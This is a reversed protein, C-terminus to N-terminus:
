RQATETQVRGRGEDRECGTRGIAAWKRERATRIPRALRGPRSEADLAKMPYVPWFTGVHDQKTAGEL